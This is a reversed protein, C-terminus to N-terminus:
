YVKRFDRPSLGFCQKFMKSFHYPNRYGLQDAIESISFTGSALMTCSRKLRVFQFYEMPTTDAYKKFLRILYYKSVGFLEALGDLSIDFTLTSEMWAMVNDVLEKNHDSSTDPSVSTTLSCLLQYLLAETQLLEAFTTMDKAAELISNLFFFANSPANMAIKNGPRPQLKSQTYNYFYKASEGYFHIWYLSWYGDPASGYSHPVGAPLFLLENPHVTQKPLDGYKIWGEGETCLVIVYDDITRIDMNQKIIHEYYGVLSVTLPRAPHHIEPFTPIPYAELVQAEFANM